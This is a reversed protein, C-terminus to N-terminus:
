EKAGLERLWDMRSVGRFVIAEALFVFLPAVLLTLLYSSFRVECPMSYLDNSLQVSLGYVLGYGIALGFVSGVLNLLLSQRLFMVSIAGHGYGLARFTAIDRKREAVSVLSSNLVSSFFIVGAFLIIVYTMVDMQAIFEEYMRDRSEQTMAVGEVEPYRKLDRLFAAKEGPSQSVTMQVSTLDSETGLLRNLYARDAYVALGIVSEITAAIPVDYRRREGKIARFSITEGARVGLEEALRAPLLIGADPVAVPEGREDHPVTLRAGREVGTIAMRKRSAGNEFVGAVAFVPEVSEVGRLNRIADLSAEGRESRLTIEYDAKMVSDFQFEMMYEMSDKLGFGALLLGAGLASAGIGAFTRAKSRGIDRLVVRWRWDLRRWLGSWREIFSSGGAGSTMARMADAPQLALIMRAGRVTGLVACAVAAAFAYAVLDPEFRAALSPFNFYPKYLEVMGVTLYYAGVAGVAGGIAGVLAGYKITHGLLASNPIGLAKFTGLIVREKEVMRTMLVNLVLAAVAFFILPLFTAMQELGELEATLTLNSTQEALPTAAFVGYADLRDSIANVVTRPHHVGQVFRGVISNAAGQFDFVEEAYERKIFFLGYGARDPMLQGPPVLYSHEAGIGEGVVVFARRQGQTTLHLRSGPALGHMDAFDPSVIVENQRDDSFYRGRRLLIDNTIPGRRSPLSMVLGSVPRDVGELDVVAPFQIRTRVSAVEPMALLAQAEAIPVKKLDIWFDALRCRANYDARATTLARHTALLGVFCSTGLAVIAVIATILGKSRAIERLLKRDLVRM